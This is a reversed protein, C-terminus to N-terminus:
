PELAVDLTRRAKRTAPNESWNEGTCRIEVHPDRPMGDFRMAGRYGYCGIGGPLSATVLLQGRARASGDDDDAVSRVPPLGTLYIEDPATPRGPAECAEASGGFALTARSVGGPDSVVCRLELARGPTFAGAFTAETASRFRGDPGRVELVVGPVTLDGTDKVLQNCGTATAVAAAAALIGCGRQNKRM